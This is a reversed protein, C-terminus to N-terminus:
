CISVLEKLDHGASYVSEGTSALIIARANPNASLEKMEDHLRSMLGLSLPNRRKPNNLVQPFFLIKNMFIFGISFFVLIQGSNKNNNQLKFKFM